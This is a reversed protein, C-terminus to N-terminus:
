IEKIKQIISNINIKKNSDIIEYNKNAILDVKRNIPLQMNIREEIESITLDGDKLRELIVTKPCDLIFIYNCIKHLGDDILLAWEIVIKKQIKSLDNILNKYVYKKFTKMKATEKYIIKNIDKESKIDLLKLIKSNRKILNRRYIDVDIFEYENDLKEKLLKMLTTKGSGMIGTIGIIKNM